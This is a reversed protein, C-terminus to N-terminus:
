KLPSASTVGSRWTSLPMVRRTNRSSAAGCKSTSVRGTRNSSNTLASSHKVVLVVLHASGMTCTPSCGMPLPAGPSFVAKKCSKNTFYTFSQPLYPFKGEEKGTRYAFLSPHLGNDFIQVPVLGELRIETIMYDYAGAKFDEIAKQTQVSHYIFATDDLYVDYSFKRKPSRDAYRLLIQYQNQYLREDEFAFAYIIYPLPGDNAGVQVQMKRQMKLSDQNLLMDRLLIEKNKPLYTEMEPTVLLRPNGPLQQVWDYALAINPRVHRQSQFTVSEYLGSAAMLLVLTGAVWRGKPVKRTVLGVGLAAVVLTIVGAPLVHSGYLKASRLVLFLFLAWNGAVLGYFPKRASILVGVGILGMAVVLYNVPNYFYEDIFAENFLTPMPTDQMKAMIGGVFAKMIVLTNTLVFPCFIVFTALVVLLARAATTWRKQSSLFFIGGLVIPAVFIFLLREALVLGFLAAIVYSESPRLKESFVLRVLLYLFVSGSLAEPRLVPASTWIMSSSVILFALVHKTGDTLLEHRSRYVFRLTFFLVLGVLLLQISRGLLLLTERDTLYDYTALDVQTFVGILGGANGLNSAIRFAIEVGFILYFTLVSPAGPWDLIRPTNGYWLLVGSDAIFNEDTTYYGFFPPAIVSWYFTFLLALAALAYAAVQLYQNQKAPIM